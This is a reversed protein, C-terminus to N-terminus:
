SDRLDSEFDVEGVLERVEVVIRALASNVMDSVIHIVAWASYVAEEDSERRSGEM